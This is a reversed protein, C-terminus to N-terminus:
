VQKNIAEIEYKISYRINHPPLSREAKYPSAELFDLQQNQKGTGIEVNLFNLLLKINNYLSTIKDFGFLLVL